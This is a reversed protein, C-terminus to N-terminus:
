SITPGTFPHRHSPERAQKQQYDTDHEGDQRRLRAVAVHATGDLLGQAGDRLATAVEYMASALEPKERPALPAARLAAARMVRLAALTEPALTAAAQARALKETRACM